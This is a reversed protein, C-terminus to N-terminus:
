TRKEFVGRVIPIVPLAPEFLNGHRVGLNQGVLPTPDAHTVCGSGPPGGTVSPLKEAGSTRGLASLCANPEEAHNKDGWRDDVRGKRFARLFVPALEPVWVAQM